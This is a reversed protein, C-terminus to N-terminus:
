PYAIVGRRVPEQGNGKGASAKIAFGTKGAPGEFSAGIKEACAKIRRRIEIGLGIGGPEVESPGYRNQEEQCM